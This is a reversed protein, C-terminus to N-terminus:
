RQRRPRVFKGGASRGIHNEDASASSCACRRVAWSSELVSSRWGQGRAETLYAIPVPQRKAPDHILRQPDSLRRVRAQGEGLGPRRRDRPRRQLCVGTSATRDHHRGRLGGAPQRVTRASTLLFRLPDRTADLVCRPRRSGRLHQAGRVGLRCLLQSSRSRVRSGAGSTRRDRPRNCRGRAAPARHGARSACTRRCGERGLCAKRATWPSPRREPSVALRHRPPSGRASARAGAGSLAPM